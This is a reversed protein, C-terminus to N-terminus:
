KAVEESSLLAEDDNKFEHVKIRQRIQEIVTERSPGFRIHVGRYVDLRSPIKRTSLYGGNENCVFRRVQDWRIRQVGFVSKAIIGEEDIRFRHPFFFSRLSFVLAACSFCGWAVASVRSAGMGDSFVYVAVGTILVMLVAVVSGSKNERLPHSVWSTTERDVVDGGVVLSPIVNM